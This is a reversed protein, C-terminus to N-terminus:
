SGKPRGQKKKEPEDQETDEVVPASYIFRRDYDPSRYCHIVTFKGSKIETEAVELCTGFDDACHVVSPKGNKDFGVAISTRM